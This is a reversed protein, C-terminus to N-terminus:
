SFVGDKVSLHLSNEWDSYTDDGPLFTFFAQEYDPLMKLFRERKERDIELLVDDLLFVPKQQGEETFFRSQIIRLLLSILRMQGTSGTDIFNNGQYIMNFNDRHPGSLTLGKDMELKKKKDLQIYAEKETKAEKWSPRYDLTFSGQHGSVEAFYDSIYRNFWIIVEERRRQLELGAKVLQVSYIELLNEKRSKLVANREKLIKRYNRLSDLYFPYKLSLTQDFFWRKREPQGNVFQIDEHCFVICPIQYVLEKRDYIPNNNLRIEKKKDQYKIDIRSKISEGTRFESGCYFDNEGIKCILQDSRTRFSSAFCLYYVLELFNTKGQGNPGVLFINKKGQLDVSAKELNRFHYAKVTEFGV